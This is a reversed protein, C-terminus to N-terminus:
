QFQLFLNVMNSIDDPHIGGALFGERVIELNPDPKQLELRARKDGLPVQIFHLYSNYDNENQSVAYHELSRTADKQAKAWIGEAGIYARIGMLANMQVQILSILIIILAVFLVIILYVHKITTAPLTSKEIM